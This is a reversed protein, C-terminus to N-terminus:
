YTQKTCTKNKRTNLFM